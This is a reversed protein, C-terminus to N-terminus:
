ALGWVHRCMPEGHTMGLLWESIIGRDYFWEGHSRGEVFQSHVRPEVEIPAAVIGILKLRNASGIQLVGRRSYPNHSHGIKVKDATEDKIFYVSGTKRNARTWEDRPVLRTHLIM